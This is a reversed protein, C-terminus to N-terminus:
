SNNVFVISDSYDRYNDLKNLVFVIKEKPLNQAIWKLHKKEADTGLNTPCIIYLVIDYDKSQLAAYTIDAHKKYLAANVGPTDIVCVRSTHSICQTFSSAISISGSWEYSQLENTTANLTLTETLLHVNGDEFPKSFLYCVNGTCVEQSTRALPKGVLANILTSKGASMNATVIIRREPQSIFLKNLRYQTILPAVVRHKKDIDSKDSLESVVRGVDTQGLRSLCNNIITIAQIALAEDLFILSIDCVLMYRYKKQWPMGICSKVANVGSKTTLSNVDIDPLLERRYMKLRESSYLKQAPHLAVENVTYSLAAFYEVRIKEKANKLPHERLDLSEVFFSDMKSMEREKKRIYHYNEYVVDTERRMKEVFDNM